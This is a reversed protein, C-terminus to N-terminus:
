ICVTKRRGALLVRDDPRGTHCGPQFHVFGDFGERNARGGRIRGLDERYLNGMPGVDQPIAWVATDPSVQNWAWDVYDGSLDDAGYATLDLLSENLVFSSIYQYEVQAVDPAGEGAEIASRLKQYHPLGQGVNEVKVDIDPYKEEFLKVENEIDPV